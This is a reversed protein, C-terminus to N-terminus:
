EIGNAKKWVAIKKKLQGESLFLPNLKKDWKMKDYDDGYKEYLNQLIIEEEEQPKPAKVKGGYKENYEVLDDIISNDAKDEKVPATKMTGYIVQVVENTEPDRILRAEGEPIKSPDTEVAVDEPAVHNIKEKAKQEERSETVTKYVNEQGGNYKGLRSTLGLKEYNQKLTLKKDWKAALVPHHAIKPKRQSDKTRKTNKAVSSRAMKRKRVSVM